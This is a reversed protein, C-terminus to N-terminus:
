PKGARASIVPESVPKPEWERWGNMLPYYLGVRIPLSADIRRFIEAYREMKERYREVENDLFAERGGGERLGTKYDIIWRVGDCVFTRDIVFSNLEEGFFGTLPFENQAGAHGFLIWRGREGTIAALLAEEARALAGQMDSPGVGENALASELVPQLNRLRRENWKSVGEQGIRQLVAHVVVGVRRAREGAWDYTVDDNSDLPQPENAASWRVGAPIEPPLWTLPLRRLPLQAEVVGAAAIRRSERARLEAQGRFNDEIAPWLLSLMTRKQPAKGTALFEQADCGLSAFLHLQHKARTAAVYLLRRLENDECEDEMSRLFRYILDDDAGKAKTAAMLLEPSGDIERESWLLLGRGSVHTSRGLAPVLVADFELGKAKHITMVQIADTADPDPQSFLKTVAIDLGALSEVDSGFDLDDLLDFFAAADELERNDRLCAPGNLSLWTSEVWQRLPIRGKQALAGELVPMVREIRAKGDETLRERRERILELVTEHKAGGVLGHLDLLSLGCWPARLIALWAVRDALHLMAHTLARLDSIVVQEALADIEVAQFRLEPETAAAERLLSVIRYLHTRSRVLVAAKEGRARIQRLTEVVQAAEEARVEDDTGFQTHLQVQAAGEKNRAAAESASFRVAGTAADQEPPFVKPFVRNVWDVIVQRSRFNRELRLLELNVTGFSLTESIRIFSAVEAERFRYISQMPDGVLFLTRGDENKWGSTLAELLKVQSVSTDQFEDVLLHEIGEGLALALDSPGSHRSLANLAAESVAAYDCTQREVFVTNLQEAALPLLRAFSELA